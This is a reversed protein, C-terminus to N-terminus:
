ATDSGSRVNGVRHKLEALKAHLAKEALRRDTVDRVIAGIGAFQGREDHLLSVSFEISLRHGDRHTAPVALLSDGYDTHGTATTQRYGRWHRDRLKEPIILDLSRGVAQTAPHGFMREAGHNWLRIIGDADTVVIAEAAERVIVQALWADSVNPWSRAPELQTAPAVDENVLTSGDGV